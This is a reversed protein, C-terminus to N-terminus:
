LAYQPFARSRHFSKPYTHSGWLDIKMPLHARDSYLGSRHEFLDAIAARSGLILIKTGLAEAYVVDGPQM